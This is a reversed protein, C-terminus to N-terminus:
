WELWGKLCVNVLNVQIPELCAQSMEFYIKPCTIISESSDFRFMCPASRVLSEPM